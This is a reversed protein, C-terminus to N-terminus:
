CIHFCCRWRNSIRHAMRGAVATRDCCKENQKHEGAKRKRGGWISEPNEWCGVPAIEAIVSSLPSVGKKAEGGPGVIRGHTCIREQFSSVATVICPKTRARQFVVDVAVKVHSDPGLCEEVIGAAGIQGNTKAGEKEVGGAVVEGPNANSREIFVGGAMPAPASLLLVVPAKLVAMPSLASKLLVVALAVGSGTILRESAITDAADLVHGVTILGEKV